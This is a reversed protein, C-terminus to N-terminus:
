EASGTDHEPNSYIVWHMLAWHGGFGVVFIFDRPTWNALYPDMVNPTGGRGFVVEMWAFVLAFWTAVMVLHRLFRGM